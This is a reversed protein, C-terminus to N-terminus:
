PLLLASILVSVIMSRLAATFLSLESVLMILRLVTTFHVGSTTVKNVTAASGLDVRFRDHHTTCNHVPFGSARVHNATFSSSELM